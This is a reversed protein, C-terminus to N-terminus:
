SGFVNSWVSAVITAITLGVGIIWAGLRYAGQQKNQYSTNTDLKSEIRGLTVSFESLSADLRRELARVEAQVTAQNTALNDIKVSHEDLRKWVADDSM